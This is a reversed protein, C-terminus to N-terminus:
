KMMRGKREGGIMQNPIETVEQGNLIITGGNFQATGDYDFTSNGTINITGGNVIVNGNSDIGDTDGQGMTITLEGDNMEFLVIYNNSNQAANVGDDSATINIKGGDIQVYTAEIGEKATIEFTGDKIAALDNAQIGKSTAKITYTGGTIKVDDKGVIGHKSSSINLSGTGKLVIDSKSFIVGDTKTNGDSIFQSTVSLSNSNKTTIFVKDASKVYICPFNTNTLNLNDLVLEVKSEDKAEVYITVNSASGSIVYVGEETISINEGDKVDYYKANTLDPEQELDRNTFVDSEDVTTDNTSAELNTSDEATNMNYETSKEDKLAFFIILGLAISLTLIIIIYIIYKKKNNM